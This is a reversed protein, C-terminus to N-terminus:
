ETDCEYITRETSFKFDTADNKEIKVIHFPSTLAETVVCNRAPEMEEIKVGIINNAEAVKVVDISHGGTDQIGMMAAVVSYKSFDVDPLQPPNDRNTYLQNWFTEFSDVDNIVKNSKEAFEYSARESQAITVFSNSVTSVEMSKAEEFFPEDVSVEDKTELMSCGSILLGLLIIFINIKM